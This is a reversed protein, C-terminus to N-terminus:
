TSAPFGVKFGPSWIDLGTFGAFIVQFSRIGLATGFLHLRGGSFGCKLAASFPLNTDSAPSITKAPPLSLGCHHSTLATV